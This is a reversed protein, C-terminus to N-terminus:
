LDLRAYRYKLGDVTLMVIRNGDLLFNSKPVVTYDVEKTSFLPKSTQKGAADITTLYVMANDPNSMKKTMENKNGNFVIELNDGVPQAVYSLFYAADNSSVQKKKIATAWVVSADDKIRFVPIDTYRYSFTYGNDRSYHSLIVYNECALTYTGDNNHFMKRVHINGIEAKDEGEDEGLIDNITQQTFAKSAVTGFTFDPTVKAFYIGGAKKASFESFFGVLDMSGDTNEYLYVDTVLKNPVKIENTKLTALDKGAKTLIYRFNKDGGKKEEDTPQVKALLYVSGDNAIIEKAFVFRKGGLAPKYERTWLEKMSADYTKIVLDTPQNKTDVLTYFILLKSRDASPIVRFSNTANTFAPNKGNVTILEDMAPNLSGDDELTTHRLTTKFAKKDFTTLFVHFTNGLLQINKLKMQDDGSMLNLEKSFIRNCDLDYKQVLFKAKSFINANTNGMYSELDYLRRDEDIVGTGIAMALVAGMGPNDQLLAQQGQSPGIGEMRLVYFADGVRGLFINTSGGFKTTAEEKGFTIKPTQALATFVALLCAFTLTIKRMITHPNTTTPFPPSLISM